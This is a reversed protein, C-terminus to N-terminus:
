QRHSLAAAREGPPTHQGGCCLKIPPRPLLRSARRGSSAGHLWIAPSLCGPWACAAPGLRHRAGSWCGVGGGVGWRAGGRQLRGLRVRRLRNLGKLRAALHLRALGSNRANPAASAQPSQVRWSSLAATPGAGTAIGTNKHNRGTVGGERNPCARRRKPGGDHRQPAGAPHPPGGLTCGQRHMRGRLLQIHFSLNTAGGGEGPKPWARCQCM